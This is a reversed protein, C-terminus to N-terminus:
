KLIYSEQPVLKEVAEDASQPFFEEVIQHESKKFFAHLLPLGFYLKIFYFMVPVDIDIPLSVIYGLWCNLFQRTLTNLTQM